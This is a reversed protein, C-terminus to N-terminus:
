EPWRMLFEGKPTELKLQPLNPFKGMLATQGHRELELVVSNTSDDRRIHIVDNVMLTLSTPENSIREPHSNHPNMEGWYKRLKEIEAATMPIHEHKDDGKQPDHEIAAKLICPKCLDIDKPPDFRMWQTYGKAMISFRFGKGVCEAGCADCYTKTTM